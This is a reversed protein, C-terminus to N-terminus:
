LGATEWDLVAANMAQSKRTNFYVAGLNRLMFRCSVIQDMSEERRDPRRRRRVEAGVANM